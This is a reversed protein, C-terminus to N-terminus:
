DNFNPYPQGKGTECLLRLSRLFLAWDYSCSAFGNSYEKWGDHHFLLVAGLRHPELEFSVETGVWDEYGKICRWKVKSYPKLEIIEMEKFYGDEFTFRSISGLEPKAITDPTWWGALGEQTTLAEFIKEAPTEILLRHYISKSTSNLGSQNETKKDEVAKPTPSGQGKLILDKLSGQIYHTWADQCIQFCEYTPVLGQQTFKLQAKGDSESIEFIIRNGKWENEDQTFKFYNDLVLWVVKENPILEVVKIRCRHVDEYHYSFEANVVNTTGEINESWWGRVNNVAAFIQEPTAEVAITTTFDQNEM